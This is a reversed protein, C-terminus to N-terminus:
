LGWDGGVRITPAIAFIPDSRGYAQGSTETWLAHGAVGIGFLANRFWFDLHVMAWGGLALVDGRDFPGRAISPGVGLGLQVGHHERAFLDFRAALGLDAALATSLGTSAVGIRVAAGIGEPSYVRLDTALELHIDGSAEGSWGLGHDFALEMRARGSRTRDQAHATRPAGAALVLALISIRRCWDV